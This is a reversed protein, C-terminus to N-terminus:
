CSNGTSQNKNGYILNIKSGTETTLLSKLISMLPTIGSGAGILFYNKSNYRNINPHFNGRPPLVGIKDGEKLCECLYKSVKGDDVKKATISIYGKDYDPSSSLSYARRHIEGDFDVILTIYQGPMYIFTEKLEEPIDFFISVAEDTERVLKSVTLEYHRETM